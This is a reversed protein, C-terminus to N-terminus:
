NESPRELTEVVYVQVPGKKSVVRVGLQEKLASVLSVGIVPNRAAGPDSGVISDLVDWELKFDYQGELGTEDIVPRGFEEGLLTALRAMPQAGAAIRRVGGATFRSMSSPHGDARVPTVGNELRFLSCIPLEHTELRIVLGFRDRLIAQLRQWQRSRRALEAANVTGAEAIEPEAPTWTVDYRESKAWGSAGSLRYDPIQYALM